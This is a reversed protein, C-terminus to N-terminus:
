KRISKLWRGLSSEFEPRLGAFRDNGKGVFRESSFGFGHGGYPFIHMEAPVSKEVLSRYYRISNEVPVTTDDTCHVIFTQPTDASVRNELSYHEILEAHREQAQMFEDVKKDRDGWFRDSGILNERTGKHTISKDLSIVPYILVSFDPRTIDDTFLNSASAALHGGASFGMVGIQNIGWEAAHSRCYRFANQVDTLPIEHRSNPLRYKVVCVTIGQSLLWDATYVGENWSSVIWYGGGPCVVVMQGNPKKPFYLDIRADDAIYSINGCSPDTHEPKSFGNSAKPGRAEELGKESNQGEPYLLITKSPKLKCSPQATCFIGPAAMLVAGLMIAIFRIKM